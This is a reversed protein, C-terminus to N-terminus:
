ASVAHATDTMRGARTFELFFVRGAAPRLGAVALYNFSV